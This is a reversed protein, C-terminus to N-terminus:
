DLVVSKKKGKKNKPYERIRIIYDCNVIDRQGNREVEVWGDKCSIVTGEIQSSSACTYILCEKGIYREILETMKSTGRLKRKKIIKRVVARSANRQEMIIIIILFILLFLYSYQM